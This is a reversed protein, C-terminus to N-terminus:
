GIRTRVKDEVFRLFAGSWSILWIKAYDAVLFFNDFLYIHIDLELYSTFFPLARHGLIWFSVYRRENFIMEFVYYWYILEVM